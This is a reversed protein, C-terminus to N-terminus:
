SVERNCHRTPCRAKESFIYEIKHGHFTLKDANPPPEFGAVTRHNIRGVRFM